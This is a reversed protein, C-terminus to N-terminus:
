SSIAVGSWGAPHHKENSRGDCNVVGIKEVWVFVGANYPGRAQRPRSLPLDRPDTRRLQSGSASIM